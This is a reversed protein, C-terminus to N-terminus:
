RKSTRQHNIISLLSIARKNTSSRTPASMNILEAPVPERSKIGHQPLLAPQPRLAKRSPRDIPVSDIPADKSPQAASTTTTVAGPKQSRPQFPIYLKLQVPCTRMNAPRPLHTPLQHQDVTARIPKSTPAVNPLTNTSLHM